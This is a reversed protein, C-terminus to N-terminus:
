ERLERPTSSPVEFDGESSKQGEAILVAAGIRGVIDPSLTRWVGLGLLVVLLPGQPASVCRLCKRGGRM